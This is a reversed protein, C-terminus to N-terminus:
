PQINLPSPIVIWGVGMTATERPDKKKLHWGLNTRVAKIALKTKVTRLFPMDLAKTGAHGFIDQGHGTLKVHEGSPLGM